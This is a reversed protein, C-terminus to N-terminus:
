RESPGGAHKDYRARWASGVRWAWYPGNVLLIWVLKEHNYFGLRTVNRMRTFIDGTAVGGLIAAPVSLLLQHHYWYPRHVLLIVSMLAQAALHTNLLQEVASPGGVAAITGGFTLLSLGTWLATAGVAPWGLGRLLGRPDDCGRTLVVSAIM